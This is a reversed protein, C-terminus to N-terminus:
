RFWRRWSLERRAVQEAHQRVTEMDVELGAADAALLVDRVIRERLEPVTWRTRGVTVQVEHRRGASLTSTPVRFARGRTMVETGEATASGDSISVEDLVPDAPQAQATVSLRIV